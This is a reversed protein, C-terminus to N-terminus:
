AIRHKDESRFLVSNSSQKFDNRDWCKADQIYIKLIEWYRKRYMIMMLYDKKKLSILGAQVESFLEVIILLV